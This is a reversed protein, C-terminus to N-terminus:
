FDMKAGMSLLTTKTFSFLWDTQTYWYTQAGRQVLALGSTFSM